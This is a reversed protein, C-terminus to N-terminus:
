ALVNHFQVLARAKSGSVIWVGDIAPVLGAM